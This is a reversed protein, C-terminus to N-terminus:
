VETPDYEEVVVTPDPKALRSQESDQACGDVCWFPQRVGGNRKGEKAVCGFGFDRGELGDEAAVNM